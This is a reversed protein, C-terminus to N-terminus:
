IEIEIGVKTATLKSAKQASQHAANAADLTKKAHATFENKSIEQAAKVQSISITKSRQIAQVFLHAGENYAVIAEEKSFGCKLLQNYNSKM